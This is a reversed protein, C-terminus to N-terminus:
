GWFMKARMTKRATADHDARQHRRGGAARGLRGPGRGLRSAPRGPPCRSPARDAAPAPRGGAGCTRAAPGRGQQAVAFSAPLDLGRGTGLGVRARRTPGSRGSPPPRTRASRPPPRAASSRRTSLANTNWSAAAM